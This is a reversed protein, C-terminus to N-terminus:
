RVGEPLSQIENASSKPNQSVAPIIQESQVILRKLNTGVPTCTMLTLTVNKDDSKMVSSESPNVVFIKKVRYVYNVNHFKIQVLDGIVVNDLLALVSNYQSKTWSYNSSHGTIFVNGMEGPLSTGSIQILGNRLNESVTAETNEVGFIIPAKVGISEIFLSNDSIAPLSSNKDAEPASQYTSVADLLSHSPQGFEDQYWWAIKKNFASFNLAYTVIIFFLIFLGIFTLAIIIPNRKKFRSAIFIQELDKESLKQTM